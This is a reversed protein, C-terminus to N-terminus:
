RLGKNKKRSDLEQTLFTNTLTHTNEPLLNCNARILVMGNPWTTSSVAKITQSTDNPFVRHSNLLQRASDNLRYWNCATKMLARSANPKNANSCSMVKQPNDEHLKKFHHTTMVSILFFDCLHTKEHCLLVLTTSHNRKCGM